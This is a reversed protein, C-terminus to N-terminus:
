FWLHDYWDLADRLPQPSNAYAWALPAYFCIIPEYMQEPICHHHRLWEAPGVSLPYLVVAVLVMTTWFAVGPKKRDTM